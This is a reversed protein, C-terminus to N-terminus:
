NKSSSSQDGPIPNLVTLKWDDHQIPPLPAEMNRGTNEPWYVPLRRRPWFGSDSKSSYHTICSDTYCASWTLEKHRPHDIRAVNDDEKSKRLNEYLEQRDLRFRQLDRKLEEEYDINAALNDQYQQSRRAEKHALGEKQRQIANSLVGIKFVYDSLNDIRAEYYCQRILSLESSPNEGLRRQFRTSHYRERELYKDDVAKRLDEAKVTGAKIEELWYEEEYLQEPEDSEAEENDTSDSNVDNGLTRVFDLAEQSQPDPKVGGTGISSDSESGEIDGDPHEWELIVLKKEYPEEKPKRRTTGLLQMQGQYRGGTLDYGGRGTAALQMKGQGRGQGRQRPQGRGDKCNRAMHGPKGCSFCTRNAMHKQRIHDPMPGQHTADLEMPDEYNRYQGRSNQNRLSRAKGEGMRKYDPDYKGKREMGREYWANDVECSVQILQDLTEIKQNPHRLLEDKVFEKLGKYYQHRLAEDDWETRTSYRQFERTYATASGKQRLVEMARVAEKKEDTVGFNAKLESIFGEWASFIIVTTTEMGTKNIEGQKNTNKLYDELFGEIWQHAKGELLTTAWLVKETDSRFREENFKMYLRLQLVFGQLKSREGTFAEPAKYRLNKDIEGVLATGKSSSSSPTGRSSGSVSM